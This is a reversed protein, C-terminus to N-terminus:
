LLMIRNYFVKLHGRHVNTSRYISVTAAKSLSNSTGSSEFILSYDYQTMKQLISLHIMKILKFVSTISLSMSSNLALSCIPDELLILIFFLFTAVDGVYNSLPLEPLATKFTWFRQYFLGPLAVIVLQLWGRVGLSLSFLCVNVRAFEVFLHVLLVDKRQLYM